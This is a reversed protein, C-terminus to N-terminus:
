CRCSQRRPTRRCSSSWHVGRRQVAGASAVAPPDSAPRQCPSVAWVCGVAFGGRRGGGLSRTSPRQRAGGATRSRSAPAIGVRRWRAAPDMMDGCRVTSALIVGVDPRRHSNRRDRREAPVPPSASARSTPWGLEVGAPRADALMSRVAFQSSGPRTACSTATALADAALSVVHRDPTSGLRGALSM